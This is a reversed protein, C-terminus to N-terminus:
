RWNCCPSESLTFGIVQDIPSLGWDDFSSCNFIQSRNLGTGLDTFVAVRRDLAM